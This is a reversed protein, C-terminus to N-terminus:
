RSLNLILYIVASILLQMLYGNWYWEAMCSCDKATSELLGYDPGTCTNQCVPLVECRFINSLLVSGANNMVTGNMSYLFNEGGCYYPHLMSEYVTM